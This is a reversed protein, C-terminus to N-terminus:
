DCAVLKDAPNGMIALIKWQGELLAFLYGSAGTTLVEGSTRYRTYRATLLATGGNLVCIEVHDTESRDYQERQLTQHIQDFGEKTDDTTMRVTGGSAGLVYSPAAYLQEAVVDTRGDSFATIYTDWATRVATKVNRESPEQALLTAATLALVTVLALETTSKGSM